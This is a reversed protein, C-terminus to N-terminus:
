RPGHERAGGVTPSRTMCFPVICSDEVVIAYMVPALRPIPRSSALESASEPARTTPNARGLSSRSDSLSRGVGTRGIAVSTLSAAETEDANASATSATPGGVSSTVQAPLMSASPGIAVTSGSRHHCATVTSRAPRHQACAGRHPEHDVVAGTPDDGHVAVEAIVATLMDRGERGGLGGNCSEGLCKRGLEIAGADDSDADVRPKHSGRHSFVESVTGLARLPQWRETLVGGVMPSVACRGDIQDVADGGAAGISECASDDVDGVIEFGKGLRTPGVRVLSSEAEASSGVGVRSEVTAARVVICRTRGQLREAVPV